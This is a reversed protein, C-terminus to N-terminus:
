TPSHRQRVLIWALRDIMGELDHELRDALQGAVDPHVVPEWAEAIGEVDRTHFHLLEHVVLAEVSLHDENELEASDFTITAQDYQHHRDSKARADDMHEFEVTVRWHDLRLRSQWADVLEAIELQTM